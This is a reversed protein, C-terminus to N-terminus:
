PSPGTLIPASNKGMAALTRQVALDKAQQDVMNLPKINSSREIEDQSVIPKFEAAAKAEAEAQIQAKIM